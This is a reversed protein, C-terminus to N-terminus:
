LRCGCLRGRVWPRWSAAGLAGVRAVGKEQNECGPTLTLDRSDAEGRVKSWGRAEPEPAPSLSQLSLGQRM